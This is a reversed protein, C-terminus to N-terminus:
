ERVLFSSRSLVFMMVWLCLLTSNSHPSNDLKPASDVNIIIKDPHTVDEMTLMAFHALRSVAGRVILDEILGRIITDAGMHTAQEMFHRVAQVDALAQHAGLMETQEPLRPKGQGKTMDAPAQTVQTARPMETREPLAKGQGIKVEVTMGPLSGLNRWEHARLMETQEPLPKGQGKTTDALDQQARLM